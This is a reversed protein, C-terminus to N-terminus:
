FIVIENARPLINFRGDSLCEFIVPIVITFIPDIPDIMERNLVPDNFRMDITTGKTEGIRHGNNM